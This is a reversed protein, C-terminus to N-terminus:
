RRDGTALQRQHGLRQAVVAADPHRLLRAVLPLGVLNGLRLAVVVELAFIRAEAVQGRAVDSRPRGLLDAVLAAADARAAAADVEIEGVGDRAEALVIIRSCYPLRNSMYAWM